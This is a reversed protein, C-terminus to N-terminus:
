ELLRSVGLGFRDTKARIFGATSGVTQWDVLWRIMLARLNWRM